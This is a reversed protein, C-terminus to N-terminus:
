FFKWSAGTDPAWQETIKHTISRYLRPLKRVETHGRVDSSVAGVRVRHLAGPRVHGRLPLRERVGAVRHVHVRLVREAPEVGAADANM